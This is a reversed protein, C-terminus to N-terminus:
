KLTVEVIDGLLVPEYYLSMSGINAPVEFAMTGSATQGPLIDGDPFRPEPYYSGESYEYGNPTRITMQAMTSISRTVTDHNKVSVNVVIFKNDAGPKNLEDGASPNWNNVTITFYDSKGPQGVAVKVVNRHAIERVVTHLGFSFLGVILAFLMIIVLVVVGLAILIGKGGPGRRTPAPPPGYPFQPYQPFGEPPM